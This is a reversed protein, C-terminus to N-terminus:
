HVRHVGDTDVRAAVWTRVISMAGMDLVHVPMSLEYLEDAVIAALVLIPDARSLLLASPATGTRIMEALVSSASSSGSGEDMVLIMGSVVAGSQPHFRDVIEGSGPDVGGWFSVPADLSLVAATVDGALVESSPVTVM